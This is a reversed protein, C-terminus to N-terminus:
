QQTEFPVPPKDDVSRWGAVLEDKVEMGIGVYSTEGNDIWELDYYAGNKRINLELVPFKNGAGDFYRIQYRGVYGEASGGTAHGTGLTGEGFHAHCWKADLTGPDDGKQYVVCGINMM